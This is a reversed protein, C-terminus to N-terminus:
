LSGLPKAALISWTMDTRRPLPTVRTPQTVIDSRRAVDADTNAAALWANFAARARHGSSTTSSQFSALLPGSRSRQYASPTWRVM